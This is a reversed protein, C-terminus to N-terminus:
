IKIPWPKLLSKKPFIRGNVSLIVNLPWTKKKLIRCAELLDYVGKAKMMNSLFLLQTPTKGTCAAPSYSAEENPIGNPCIFADERDAYKKIDDYLRESLLIVKLNRFFQRYLFNDVLRDQRTLVGKNHYHALVKCGMTKLMQVVIFDKYFAGGCANPTIYILQPKLTRIVCRINLLLRAFKKIKNWGIRGIDAMDTATALNIYHCDFARNIVTSDHIYQGVMAAGHVPPPLHLIFLITKKM